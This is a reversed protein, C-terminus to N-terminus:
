NRQRRVRPPFKELANESAFYVILAIIGGILLVLVCAVLLHDWLWQGTSKLVTFFQSDNHAGEDGPM